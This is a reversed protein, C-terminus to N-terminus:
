VTFKDCGLIMHRTSQSLKVTHHTSQANECGFKQM